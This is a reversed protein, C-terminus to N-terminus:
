QHTALRNAVVRRDDASMAHRVDSAQQREFHHLRHDGRRQVPRHHRRGFLGFRHGTSAPWFERLPQPAQRVLPLLKVYELPEILAM